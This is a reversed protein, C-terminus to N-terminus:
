VAQAAGLGHDLIIDGPRLSIEGAMSQNFVIKIRVSDLVCASIIETDEQVIDFVSNMQGPTGGRVDGSARWNESQICPNYPDILELSWGGESKDEDSYWDPQYSLAHIICGNKDIILLDQGTNPLSFSELGWFPGYPFLDERAEERALILYGYPEITINGLQKETEGMMLAWGSLDIPLHTTNFLELYEYEPLMQAPSPDAMIENFVIDYRLAEYRSFALSVPMMENGELDTIHRITIEMIQGYPISDQLTLMVTSADNEKIEAKEPPPFGNNFIFNGSNTISLPDPNESFGIEMTIPSLLNIGTVEPPITDHIVPGAYFDDFYFKSSNSITYKCVIGLFGNGPQWVESSTGEHIFDDGGDYDAYLEWMGSARVVKIRCIFSQAIAGAEGRIITGTDSDIQRMLRLADNSGAEGLQLFIGDPLDTSCSEKAFLYLRANNNGSPSFALRVWCNWQMEDGASLATFLCAQGEKDDYLQLQLNDNVIFLGDDGVWSPSSLIEGDSFDDSVQAAIMYPMIVIIYILRKLLPPM